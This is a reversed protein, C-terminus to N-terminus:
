WNEAVVRWQGGEIRFVQKITYSDKPDPYINTEVSLFYDGPTMMGFGRESENAQDYSKVQLTKLFFLDSVSRGKFHQFDEDDDIFEQIEQEIDPDDRLFVVGAGSVFGAADGQAFYDWMIFFALKVGEPGKLFPRRYDPDEPKEVLAFTLAAGFIFAAVVVAVLVSKQAPMGAPYRHPKTLQENATTDM